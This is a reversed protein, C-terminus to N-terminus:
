LEEKFTKGDYVWGVSAPSNELTMEILKSNPSMKQAEDFSSAVCVGNVRNNPDLTAYMIVM